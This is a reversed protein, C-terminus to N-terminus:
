QLKTIAEIFADAAEQSFVEAEVLTDILLKEDFDKVLTLLARVMAAVADGRLFEGNSLDALLDEDYMEIGLAMNLAELYKFDGGADDSYGLIRLLFTTFERCTVPRDPGFAAASVGKTIGRGYAFAVYPVNASYTVDKFPNPGTYALAEEELGLLRITLILAQLRTLPGELSYVPKGEEDTATGKFLGLKYLEDAYSTITSLPTDEDEIVVPGPQSGGPAGGSSKVLVYVFSENSGDNYSYEYWNGSVGNPGAVISPYPSEGVPVDAFVANDWFVIYAGGSTIAGKVYVSAGYGAIVGCGDADTVRVNGNVTVTASNYALVGIYTATINGEVTVEDGADRVDVGTLGIANTVTAKSGDFARVGYDTGTVNITADPTKTLQGGDFVYAGSGYHHTSRANLTGPGIVHLLVGQVDLASDWTTDITLTKGNLDLIINNYHAYLGYGFEIDSLLKVTYNDNSMTLSWADKFSMTGQSVNSDDFVECTDSEESDAARATMPLVTFLSFVMALTLILSLVKKRRM